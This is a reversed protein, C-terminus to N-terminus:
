ACQEKAQQVICMTRDPRYPPTRREAKQTRVPSVRTAERPMSAPKADLGSLRLRQPAKMWLCEVEAHAARCRYNGDNKCYAAIWDLGAQYLTNDEAGTLQIGFPEVEHAVDSRQEAYQNIRFIRWGYILCALKFRGCCLDTASDKDRFGTIVCLQLSSKDCQQLLV